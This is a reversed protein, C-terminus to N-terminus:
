RNKLRNREGWRVKQGGYTETSHDETIRGQEAEENGIGM